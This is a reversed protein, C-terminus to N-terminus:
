GDLDSKNSWHPKPQYNQVGKIVQQTSFKFMWRVSGGALFYKDKLREEPSDGADFLPQVSDFFSPSSDPLAPTARSLAGRRDRPGITSSGDLLQEALYYTENTTPTTQDLTCSRLASDRRM